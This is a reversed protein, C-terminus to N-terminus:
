RPKTADLRAPAQSPQAPRCAAFDPAQPPHSLFRLTRALDAKHDFGPGYMGSAVNARHAYTVWEPTILIDRAPAGDQEIHWHLRGDIRRITTREGKRAQGAGSPVPLSVRRAVAQRGARWLRLIGDRSGGLAAIFLDALATSKQHKM